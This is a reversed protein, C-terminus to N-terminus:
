TYAVGMALEDIVVGDNELAKRFEVDSAQVSTPRAGTAPAPGSGVARAAQKTPPLGDRQCGVLFIWLVLYFAAHKFRFMM